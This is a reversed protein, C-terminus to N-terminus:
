LITYLKTIYIFYYYSLEKLTQLEESSHRSGPITMRIEFTPISFDEGLYRIYRLKDQTFVPCLLEENSPFGPHFKLRKLHKLLSPIIWGIKKSTLGQHVHTLIFHLDSELLHDVLQNPLWKNNKVDKNSIYEVKIRVHGPNNEKDNAECGYYKMIKNMKLTFAARQLCRDSGYFVRILFPKTAMNGLRLNSYTYDLRSSKSVTEWLLLSEESIDEEVMQCNGQIETTIKDKRDPSKM